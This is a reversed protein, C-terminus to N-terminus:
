HPRVGVRVVEVPAVPVLFTDARAEVVIEAVDAPPDGIRDDDRPSPDVAAVQAGHWAWPEDIEQVGRPWGLSHSQPGFLTAIGDGARALPGLVFRTTVTLLVFLFLAQTIPSLDM